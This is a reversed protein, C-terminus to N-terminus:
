TTITIRQTTNRRRHQEQQKINKNTSKHIPQGSEKNKATAAKKTATRRIAKTKM